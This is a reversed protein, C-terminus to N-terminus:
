GELAILEELEEMEETEGTKVVKLGPYNFSNALLVATVTSYGAAKIKDIDFTLLKQGAKM